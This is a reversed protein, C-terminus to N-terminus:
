EGLLRSVRLRVSGILFKFEFYIFKCSDGHSDNVRCARTVFAAILFVCSANDCVNALNHPSVLWVFPKDDILCM